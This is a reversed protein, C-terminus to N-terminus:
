APLKPSVPPRPALPIRQTRTSSRLLRYVSGSGLVGGLPVVFYLLLAVVLLLAVGARLARTLVRRADPRLEEEEAAEFDEISPEDSVAWLGSADTM